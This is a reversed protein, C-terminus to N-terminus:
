GTGTIIHKGALVEIADKAWAVDVGVDEFSKRPVTEILAFKTFHDIQITAMGTKLDIASPVPIWEGKVEDFWAVTLHNLDVKEDIAVKLSITVPKDFKTGDPGFDYISSGIKVSFDKVEENEIEKITIEKVETLHKKQYWFLQKKNKM